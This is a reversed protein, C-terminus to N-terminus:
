WALGARIIFNQWFAPLFMSSYRETRDGAAQGISDTENSLDLTVDTIADASFTMTVVIEGMLERDAPVDEAIAFRLM